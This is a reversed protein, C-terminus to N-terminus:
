ANRGPGSCALRSSVRSRRRSGAGRVKLERSEKTGPEVGDADAEVAEIWGCDKGTTRWVKVDLQGENRARDRRLNQPSCEDYNLM